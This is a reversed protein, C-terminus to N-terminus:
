LPIEVPIEYFNVCGAAGVALGLSAVVAAATSVTM